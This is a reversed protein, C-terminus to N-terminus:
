LWARVWQAGATAEQPSTLNQRPQLRTCKIGGCDPQTRIWARVKDKDVAEMFERVLRLAAERLSEETLRDGNLRAGHLM